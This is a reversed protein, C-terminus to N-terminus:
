LKSGGPPTLDGREPHARFGSSIVLRILDRPESTMKTANDHEIEIGMSIAEGENNNERETVMRWENVGVGCRVDVDVRGV